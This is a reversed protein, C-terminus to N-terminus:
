AVTPAIEHLSSSAENPRSSWVPAKPRTMKSSIAKQVIGEEVDKMTLDDGLHWQAASRLTAWLQPCREMRLTKPTLCSLAGTHRPPASGLPRAFPMLSPVALLGTVEASFDDALALKQLRTKFDMAKIGLLLLTSLSAKPM